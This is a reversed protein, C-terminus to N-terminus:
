KKAPFLLAAMKEAAAKQEDTTLTKGLAGYLRTLKRSDIRAEAQRLVSACLTKQETRTLAKTMGKGAIAEAEDGSVAM